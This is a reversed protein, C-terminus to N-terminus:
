CLMRIHSWLDCMLISSVPRRVYQDEDQLVPILQEVAQSGGIEAFAEAALQCVDDDNDQLTTILPQIAGPDGITGLTVSASLRVQIDEDQL